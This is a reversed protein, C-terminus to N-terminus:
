TGGSGGKFRATGKEFESFTQTVILRDIHRQVTRDQVDAYMDVALKALGLVEPAITMMKRCFAYVDDMFTEAPFVDHVLGITKAQESGVRMGAMAMYKAWSPGILRTLRSTGGSGAIAGLFVEPVGFEAEPTCFRFDCSMAMEVGAGLCIGQAALVIPKEVAEFEDYLLHHSRYNRRFNWGPHLHETEPNGRRNGGGTALDIGATFYKGKATIVMCRLDDRDALANVAEWYTATVQPSIANLKAQRDVTVTIIGDDESITAHQTDNV